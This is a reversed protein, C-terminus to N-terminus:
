DKSAIPEPPINPRPKPLYLCFYKHSGSGCLSKIKEITHSSSPRIPAQIIIASNQAKIHRPKTIAIRQGSLNPESKANPM